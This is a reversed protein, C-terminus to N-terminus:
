EIYLVYKFWNKAGQTVSNALVNKDAIDNSSCNIFILWIEYKNSKSSNTCGVCNKELGGLLLM